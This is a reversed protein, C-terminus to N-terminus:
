RSFQALLKRADDNEIIVNDIKWSGGENVLKAVCRRTEFVHKKEGFMLSFSVDAHQGNVRAEGIQFSNPVDQSDTFLDGDIGEVEDGSHKASKQNYKHIAELFEKSLWKEKKRLGPGFSDFDKFHASYFARVVERPAASDAAKSCTLAVVCVLFSLVLSKMPHTPSCRGNGAGDLALLKKLSARPEPRAPRLFIEREKDCRAPFAWFSLTRWQRTGAPWLDCWCFVM